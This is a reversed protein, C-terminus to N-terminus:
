DGNTFVFFFFCSEFASGSWLAIFGLFLFFRREDLAPENEDCISGSGKMWGSM